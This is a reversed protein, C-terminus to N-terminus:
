GQNDQYYRARAEVSARDVLWTSGAKRGAIYGRDLLQGVRAKNVGLIECAEAVTVVHEVHNGYPELEVQSAGVTAYTTQRSRTHQLHIENGGAPRIWVVQGPHLHQGGLPTLTTSMYATSM